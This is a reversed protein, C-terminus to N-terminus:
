EGRQSKSRRQEVLDAIRDVVTPLQDSYVEHEWLRVITWGREELAKTQRLDREVNDAIKEKWWSTNAKPVRFHLPCGHWFCGDVFVCVKQGTFVVDAKCRIGPVPRIEKRYRVGSAHLARRLLLEPSTDASGISRMTERVAPSSAAPARYRISKHEKSM